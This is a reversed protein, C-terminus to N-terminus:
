SILAEAIKTSRVANDYIIVTRDRILMAIGEAVDIVFESLLILVNAV